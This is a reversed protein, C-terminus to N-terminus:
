GSAKKSTARAYERYREIEAGRDAVPRWEDREYSDLLDKEEKDLKTMQFVILATGLHGAGIINYARTKPELKASM